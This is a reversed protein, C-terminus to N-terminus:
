PASRGAVAFYAQCAGVEYQPVDSFVPGVCIGWGRKIEPVEIREVRVTARTSGAEDRLALRDLVTQEHGSPLNCTIFCEMPEPDGANRTLPFPMAATAPMKAMSENGLVHCTRINM